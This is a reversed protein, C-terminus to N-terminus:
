HIGLKGAWIRSQWVPGPWELWVINYWIMHLWWHSRINRCGSKLSIDERVEGEEGLMFDVPLRPERGFMLFYPTMGTSPHTTTNYAYIVQSLHSPMRNQPFVRLLDHLTRNFRECQGNGQPHYLLIDRKIRITKVCSIFWYAQLIGGNTNQSGPRYKCTLDFAALESAWM